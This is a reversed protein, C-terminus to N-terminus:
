HVSNGVEGAAILSAEKAKDREYNDVGGKNVGCWGPTLNINTILKKM